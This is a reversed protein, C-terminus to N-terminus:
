SRAMNSMSLCELEVAHEDDDDGELLMILMGICPGDTALRSCSCVYIYSTAPPQCGPEQDTGTRREQEDPSSM